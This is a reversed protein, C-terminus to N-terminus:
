DVRSAQLQWTKLSRIIIIGNKDFQLLRTINKLASVEQLRSAYITADM